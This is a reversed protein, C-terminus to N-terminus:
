DSPLRGVVLTNFRGYAREVGFVVVLIDFLAETLLDLQSFRPIDDLSVCEEQSPDDFLQLQGM